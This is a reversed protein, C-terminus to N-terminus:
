KSVLGAFLGAFLPSIIWLQLSGISAGLGIADGDSDLVRGQLYTSGDNVFSTFFNVSTTDGTKKEFSIGHTQWLYRINNEPIVDGSESYVLNSTLDGGSLRLTGVLADTCQTVVASLYDRIVLMVTQFFMTGRIFPLPGQTPDLEDYKQGPVSMSFGEVARLVVFLSAAATVIPGGVELGQMFSGAKGINRGLFFLGITVVARVCKIFVFHLKLLFTRFSATMAVHDSLVICILSVMFLLVFTFNVMEDGYILGVTNDAAYKVTPSLASGMFKAVQGVLNFPNIAGAVSGLGKGIDTAQPSNESM